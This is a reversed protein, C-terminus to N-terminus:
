IADRCDICPFPVWQHELCIGHSNLVKRRYVSKKTRNFSIECCFVFFVFFVFFFFFFSLLELDPLFIKGITILVFNDECAEVKNRQIHESSCSSVFGRKERIAM